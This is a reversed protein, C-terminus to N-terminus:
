RYLGVDVLAMKFIFYLFFFSLFFFFGCCGVVNVFRLVWVLDFLGVVLVVAVVAM